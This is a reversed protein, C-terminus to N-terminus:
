PGAPPWPGDTTKVHLRYFRRPAGTDPVIDFSAPNGDGAIGIGTDRWVQLHSTEQGPTISSSYVRYFRGAVTPFTMRLPDTPSPTFRLADAPNSPSTGMIAEDTDTIGDGDSDVAATQPAFQVDTLTMFENVSDNLGTVVLQVSTIGAPVTAGLPYTFEQTTPNVAPPPCLEAGEMRGSVDLDYPGVLPVQQGPDGNLVLYAVFNDLAEFGASTDRIRLTATFRLPGTVGALPLTESTLSKDGLGAADGDNMTAAPPEGAVVWAPDAPQATDTYFPVFGTGRDIRGIRWPGPLNALNLTATASPFTNDTFTISTRALGAPITLTVPGFPGGAPSTGVATWGSGGYEGTVTVDFSIVDDALGPGNDVRLINAPASVFVAARPVEILISSFILTEAPSNSNGIVRFRVSSAAAPIVRVLNFTARANIGAPLEVGGTLRGDADTDATGLMSEWPAGDISVQMTASDFVEFGSSTGTIATLTATLRVEPQTSLDILESEVIHDGQQPVSTQGITRATSDIAWFTPAPTLAPASLLPRAPTALGNTGIWGPALVSVTARCEADASDTFQYTASGGPLVGTIPTASGYPLTLPPDALIFDTGTFTGDAGVVYSIFDDAPDAPTGGDAWTFATVSPTIRCWPAAMLVATSVAPSGRDEIVISISRNPGTFDAIPLPPLSVTSGYTGTVGTLAAPSAIRWGTPSVAGTGTVTLSGTVTDDAPNRPTGTENRVVNALSGTVAVDAATFTLDVDDLGMLADAGGDNINGWRIAFFEGPDIRIESAPPTSIPTRVNVPTYGSPSIYTFEAERVRNWGTVFHASPTTSVDTPFDAVTAPATTLSLIAAQSAAKRWWVALTEVNGATQNTHLVEAAWAINSLRVPTSSTNQFVAIASLEGQATIPVAALMRDPDGDAGASYFWGTNPSIGGDSIRYLYSAGAFGIPTGNGARYLWWGPITADDSWAVTTPSNNAGTTSTGSLVNFDVRYNMSGTIPIPAAPAATALAGLFAATLRPSCPLKM